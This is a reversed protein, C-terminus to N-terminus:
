LLVKENLTFFLFVVYKDQRSVFCLLKSLLELGSVLFHSALAREVAVRWVLPGHKASPLLFWWPLKVPGAGM